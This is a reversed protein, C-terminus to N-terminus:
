LYKNILYHLPVPVLDFEGDQINHCMLIGRWYNNTLPTHYEEKHTYCSGAIVSTLRKGDARHTTAIQLGQQHGTICSMHMKTLQAQASACPRGLIGSPLYHCFAIGGIVIPELYPIVNWGYEKYKLDELGITGDLKPDNNVARSIRDEHNGLTFIYTPVYQQHKTRRMKANYEKIPALLTEMGDHAAKIDAKYRRGEFSKKGIDYSSLSPMDAFDGINIVVSPKKAVIYNGIATLYSLDEDPKVQCDPIILYSNTM